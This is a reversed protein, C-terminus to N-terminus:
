FHVILFQRLFFSKAHIVIIRTRVGFSGSVSVTSSVTKQVDSITSLQTATVSFQGATLPTVDIDASSKVNFINPLGFTKQVEEVSGPMLNAVTIDVAQGLYEAGLPLDYATACGLLLVIFLQLFM